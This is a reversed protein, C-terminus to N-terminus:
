AQNQDIRIDNYLRIWLLISDAGHLDRLLDSGPARRSIQGRSEIAPAAALSPHRAARRVVITM